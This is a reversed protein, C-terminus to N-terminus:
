EREITFGFEKAIDDLSITEGARYEAMAERARRILPNEAVAYTVTGNVPDTELLLEDGAEIGMEDRAAKPMNVQGSDSVRVTFLSM